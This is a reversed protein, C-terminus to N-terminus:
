DLIRLLRSLIQVWQKRLGVPAIVCSLMHQLFLLMCPVMLLEHIVADWTFLM